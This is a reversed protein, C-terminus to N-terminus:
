DHSDKRASEEVSNHLQVILAKTRDVMPLYEFELLDALLIWDQNEQIEILETFLVSLGELSSAFEAPASVGFENRLVGVMALFDRHVDLLDSYLELAQADDAQRFFDAVQQGAAAMLSVVKHLEAVINRAMEVAPVSVIEVRNIDHAEVDQAQHPYVESFAEDNVFVDTVIRSRMREGDLVEEIIQELNQFHVVELPSLQGDVIIM